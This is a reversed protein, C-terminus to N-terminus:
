LLHLQDGATHANVLAADGIKEGTASYKQSYVGWGSGDEGNSMWTIVYGGDPLGAVNPCRQKDATVTNILTEEGQKNGDSSFRQAYIENESGSHWAVVYGGDVLGSVAGSEGTNVPNM